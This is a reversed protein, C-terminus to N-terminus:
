SPCPTSGSATSASSRALVRRDQRDRGARRPQRHQPRAPALLLPPPVVPRGTRRLDLHEDEADPFVVETTRSPAATRRGLRLLRPLAVDRSPRASQFWPHQDSTHNVVLDIIVRLGRDKATRVFVVFDGLSGLRPDVGYYDTIDYGDDRNPSPYFPMLWLCSVGSAPWTTSGSPSAPSTAGATATRLRPLDRRRPLLRRREEVVPRQTRATADHGQVAPDCSPSSRPASSTSSGDQDQGVHHLYIGDVRSRPLGPAHRPTAPSTPRSSCRQQARRRAPRLRRRRRVAGPARPELRAAGAFVNTRWQDHAIALAEDEARAWSVHVQLYVPKGEGGGDRFADIVRRLTEAPQNVTILGDAWGGVARATAESVAAGVCRRPSPRCPGCGPGTSRSSATTPSRRAACFPGSSTSASSCAPTARRGQRALPRRHRARQHGGRLRPRGLVTRPVHEALTAIAQATIAPHYRQGPATVVGFPLWTAQSPPASGRGPTAPTARACAGPRSTTRACRPM